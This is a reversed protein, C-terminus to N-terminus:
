NRRASSQSYTAYMPVNNQQVQQNIQNIMDLVMSSTFVRGPPVRVEIAVTQQQQTNSRGSSVGGGGASAASGSSSASSRGGSTSGGGALSAVNQGAAVGWQAASEFYMAAAYYDFIGLSHFAAALNSPIEYAAQAIVAEKGLGVMQMLNAGMSITEHKLAETRNEAADQVIQTYAQEGAALQARPIKGEAAEQRMAAITKQAQQVRQNYQQDIQRLAPLEHSTMEANLAEIQYLQQHISDTLSISLPLAQRQDETLAKYATGLLGFQTYAGAAALGQQDISKQLDKASVTVKQNIGLAREEEDNMRKWLVASKNITEQASALLEQQQHQHRQAAEEAKREAKGREEAAKQAAKEAAEQIAALRQQEEARQKEAAEAAKIAAEMKLMFDTQDQVSKNMLDTGEKWEKRAWIWGIGMTSLTQSVAKAKLAMGETKDISGSLATIANEITPILQQGLVLTVGQLTTKLTNIEITFQHGQDAHQKDTFIGLKKAQEIAPGYGQEALMQLANINTMWGRGLLSSLALNREGVDNMAFIRGLVIQIREDMPKLGLNALNQAGGMVEALVKSTMAGPEAIALSLSRGARALAMTLLDFNEGTEKSIAMLGSLHEASMGTKESAEYIANGMEAAKSALEFMMGAVGAAAGGAVMLGEAVHVAGDAFGQFKTKSIGFTNAISNEFKQVASIAKDPDADITFLLGLVNSLGM